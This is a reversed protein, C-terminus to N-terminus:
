RVVFKKTLNKFKLLYIGKSSLTFERQKGAAVIRGQMDYIYAPTHHDDTLIRVSGGEILAQDADAKLEHCSSSGNLSYDITDYEKVEKFLTGWVSHAKYAEISGRPVYLTTNGFQSPYDKYYNESFGNRPVPDIVYVSTLGWFKYWSTLRIYTLKKPLVVTKLNDFRDITSLIVTDMAESFKFIQVHNNRCYSNFVGEDNSISLIDDPMRYILDKKNGPYFLYARNHREFLVGDNSFYVENEPSVEIAELNPFFSAFTFRPWRIETGLRSIRNYLNSIKKGIYLYKVYPYNMESDVVGGIVLEGLNAVNDPFSISDLSTYNFPWNGITHVKEPIKLKKLGYCRFFACDGIYEVSEPLRVESVRGLYFAYLGLGRVELDGDEDSHVYQPIEVKGKLATDAENLIAFRDQTKTDVVVQYKLLGKKFYRATEQWDAIRVGRQVQSPKLEFLLSDASAYAAVSSVVFALLILYRKMFKLFKIYQIIGVSIAAPNIVFQNTNLNENM